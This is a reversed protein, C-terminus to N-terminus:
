EYGGITDTGAGRNNWYMAREVMIPRAGDLSEVLISARGDLGADVMSYTKRSGAPLEDAFTASTEGGQSLYTVRVTVSAPNPNQVCTFTEFGDSTQGDPLYFTMHASDLGISDHMAEGAGSDWYMAREAIIPLSGHVQTSFDTAPLEDNVKVTRRSNAPMAFTPGPVPGSATHYTLSVDAEANNPNQVLVYTTFGWATTGEALFYNQSPVTAGLSCSGERKDNRYMSREAMVPVDSTVEISADAAGIDSAMNFTARSNAPVTKGVPVPGAETMYTLIIDAQSANPNQVLTWTEFGWASSGEPLYWTNAPTTAGISNHGEPSSAGEGTWYMTRDVAIPEGNPCQVRTSFDVEGIDPWSSVTTQSLPPLTVTRTGAIGTGSAPNPDMYTLLAEVEADNPNEITIYTSFGWANSGEALYWTSSQPVETVTFGDVLKNTKDGGTKVWVNRPGTYTDLEITVNARVKTASLRTTSNVNVGDGSFVVESATTFSGDTATLEVDLTEGRAGSAPSISDLASIGQRYVQGDSSGCFLAAGTPDYQLSSNWNTTQSVLGLDLWTSGTSANCNKYVHGDWALAYLTDNVEDVTLSYIEPGGCLTGIGVWDGGAAVNRRFVNVEGTQDGIYIGAYLNNRTSDLALCTVGKAYTGFDVGFPTWGSGDYRYVAATPPWETGISGGAYLVNAAPDMEMCRLGDMPTGISAWPGPGSQYDYVWTAGSYTGAYLKKRAGDSAVSSPNDNGVAGNTLIWAGGEQFTWVEFESTTGNYLSAVLVNGVPDYMIDNIQSTSPGGTSTWAGSQYRYVQGDAAGAYLIHHTEDMTLCTIGSAAPGSPSGTSTWVYAASAATVMILLLCVSLLISVTLRTRM